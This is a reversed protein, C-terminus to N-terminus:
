NIGVTLGKITVPGATAKFEATATANSKVNVGKINVDTSTLEISASGVKLTIKTNAALEITNGGSIKISKANDAMEIQQGSSTKILIKKNKDDLRIQHGDATKTEIFQDSDNLYLKHGKVTDLYVGQKAAGKDEEVFQLTHGLRTKFTRLRVKGDAV